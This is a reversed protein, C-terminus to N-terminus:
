IFTDILEGKILWYYVIYVGAGIMVLAGVVGEM